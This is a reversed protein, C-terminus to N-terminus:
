PKDEFPLNKVSLVERNERTWPMRLDILPKFSSKFVIFTYSKWHFILQLRSGFLWAWSTIKVLFNLFTRWAGSINLIVFTEWLVCFYKPRISLLPNGNSSYKVTRLVLTLLVMASKRLSWCIKGLCAKIAICLEM